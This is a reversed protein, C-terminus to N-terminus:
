RRIVAYRDLGALDREITVSAEPLNLRVEHRVAPVLPPDIELIAISKVPALLRPLDRLLPSVLKMGDPGGDLASRPEFSLEPEAECLRTSLVYPLNALIIEYPGRLGDALNCCILRVRDLVDFRAANERAVSLADLSIDVADVVGTPIELAVTVALAGSGVGVDAVRARRGKAFELAREVLFETEPRPILVRRDVRFSRGYFPQEGLLYALPERTARREVLGDLVDKQAESVAERLCSYMQAADVHLVFRVLLEAELGAESIGARSLSTRVRWLLDAVTLQPTM